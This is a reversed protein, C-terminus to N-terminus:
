ITWAFKLGSRLSGVGLDSVIAALNGTKDQWSYGGDESGLVKSSAVGLKYFTAMKLPNSPLYELPSVNNDFIHRIQWSALDSTVFLITRSDGDANMFAYIIGNINKICGSAHWGGINGATVTYWKKGDFNPSVRSVRALIAPGSTGAWALPDFLMEPVNTAFEDCRWLVGGGFKVPSHNQQGGFPASTWSVGGNTSRGVSNQSYWLFLNAGLHEAINRGDEPNPYVNPQAYNAWSFPSGRLFQGDAGLLARGCWLIHHGLEPLIAAYGIDRQTNTGLFTDSDASGWFKTWAPGPSGTVNLNNTYWGLPGNGGGDDGKTWVYALNEPAAYDLYFHRTIGVVTGSFGPVIEWTPSAASFFNRTRCLFGNFIGYLLDGTSPPPEIPPLIPPFPIIPPFDIDWDPLDWDDYPAETPIIITTGPPGHTEEAARVTMMLAQNGAQYDYSVEQVIFSKGNWVIRRWNEDADLDVMLRQQPAIDLNRYDGAMPLTLDTYLANAKAYALGALRNIGAQGEVVLGSVREVRGAYGAVDGPAGGLVASVTGTAPGDYGIGGLEVYALGAYSGHRGFTIESRWDQRTLDFGVGMASLRASGTPMLSGDVEAWMKGQRDAVLSAMLASQYLGNAADYIPGRDFDAFQVQLADGSPSFDAIEMLTSHWRLFHVIARDVTMNLMENWTMANRKSELTASYGAIRAAIGTVSRANFELADDAPDLRISDDEIYGCFIIGDRNEAGSAKKGAVGGQWDDTFLVVLAGDVVKSFDSRERVALRVAYGGESRSGEFSRLMWALIPPRPGEDPRTYISIHRHGTLSKGSATTATYSTLFHGAGTYGIWGPDALASGSPDGGEFVWSSGTIASGDPGYSGSSSYYIYAYSGSPTAQMFAAHNPGMDVVPDMIQNQDTYVIDFDKYFVPVNAADLVILPFVAWPEFYAVVTLYWADVWDTANEALTLISATSSIARIRGLDQGGPTTGIYCTMGRLVANFDGALISISVEREGKEIGPHDVQAALVTGPQYVSM